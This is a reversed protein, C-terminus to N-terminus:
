TKGNTLIENQQRLLENERQMKELIDAHQKRKTTYVYIFKPVYVATLTTVLMVGPSVQVNKTSLYQSFSDTLAEKESANLIFDEKDDKKQPTFNCVIAPLLIDLLDVILKATPESLKIANLESKVEKDTIYRPELNNETQPTGFEPLESFDPAEYDQIPTERSEFWLAADDKVTENEM